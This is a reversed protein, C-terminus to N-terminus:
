AIIDPLLKDEIQTIRDKLVLKKKKLRKILLQDASPNGELAAIESDLERHEGRLTVLQERLEREDRREM